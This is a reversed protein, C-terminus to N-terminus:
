PPPLILVARVGNTVQPDFALTGGHSRVITQCISLGLGLGTAKTTAFPRFPDDAVAPDIGPGEDRVSIEFRGDEHRRVTVTVVRTAAPQEAMADAANLILNLLVQKIQLRSARVLAPAPAPRLDVTVERLILESQILRVTAGIIQNLDVIACDSVGKAMLRRLEVIIGAARRDDEAIDAFIAAIEDRDLPEEALIQSGAEANALIATLPQNLEHAMAGSLEGLQAVRSVHALESRRLAVEREATRRRRDQLILAGITMSQLLVLAVALLIQPRYREWASPSYFELVANAPLLARDLGYRHMQRWDMVPRSQVVRMPPVEVDENVLKLAQGAMAAGVDRFRQVDGGVVGRGVFTDYLGWTPAASREAIAEAANAPTFQRGAADEYITLILLITEPDLEAAVQQFGELTLGSVFDAKIGELQSLEERVAPEWSRDFASSGAMVVLRPASPQVRRALDITGSLSFDSSVGYVGSPLVRGAITADGIGGFVIPADIGLPARNAVAYDLAWGGFALIADFHQGRYKREIEASFLRDEEPGPFRQDDRFEAYAEYDAGLAHEFAAHMGMTADVNAMLDSHQSYILLFRRQPTDEAAHVATLMWPLVWSLVLVCVTSALPAIAPPSGHRPRSRDM